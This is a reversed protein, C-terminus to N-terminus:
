VEVRPIDVFAAHRYEAGLAPRQRRVRKVEEVRLTYVSKVIFTPEL